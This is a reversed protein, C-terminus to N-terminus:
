SQESAIGDRCQTGCYSRGEYLLVLDKPILTGCRSCRLLSDTKEARGCTEHQGGQAQGNTRPFRRPKLFLWVIRIVWLVVGLFLLFRLVAM